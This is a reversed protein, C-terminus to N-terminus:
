GVQVQGVRLLRVKNKDKDTLGARQRLLRRRDALWDGEEIIDM